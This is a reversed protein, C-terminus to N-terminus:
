DVGDKEGAEDEDDDDDDEDDDDEEGDSIAEGLEKLRKQYRNNVELQDCLTRASYVKYKQVKEELDGFVM